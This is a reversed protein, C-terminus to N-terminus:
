NYRKFFVMEMFRRVSIPRVGRKANAAGIEFAIKWQRMLDRWGQFLRNDPDYVHTAESTVGNLELVKINKGQHFDEVSTVRVDYRGFYFGNFQRSISDFATTMEPTILASGDLFLAGRAHTGVEVLEIEEGASPVDFLQRRHVRFHLPALCVARDDMLILEELTHKGDGTLFLRRKDTISFIAGQDQGPYRYYFVGSERGEIYEQVITDEVAEELYRHVQDMDRAVTVGQGRQGVDPKLIIPFELHRNAMFVQIRDVQQEKPIAQDILIFSAVCESSGLNNLIDSKSEGIIGGAPMGPNAATFVTFNRHRLGLFLIYGVIPIYFVQVPWFEWRTLRRFRSLLLRRGRFSSLPVLIRVGLWLFFVTALVVWIAYQEFVPYYSLIRSGVVTSLGVLAPTWLLAAFAFYVTFTLLSTGLMGATFYTPMRSGPLFRSILIIAPGRARFWESSREIDETTLLWKLPAKGLAPRGIFRGALFLLIDGIVIGIFAAAAAPVFGIIGRAAMMGAGICALDESILTALAILVMYMILLPGEAPTLMVTPMLESAADVRDPTAVARTVGKGAEVRSIFESVHATVLDPQEFVLLHGGDLLRLESQPVLRYHERAAVAPILTDSAGHWILTPQTVQRLLERLPRQDTEYFNRAYNTNLPFQDLWGFHPTGEQLLWLMALQTGHLARNLHYDGLLELEQVGISSILSLSAVREPAEAALHIAVGGGMSYGVLHAQSIGLTDMFLLLYASHAKISYDPIHQTSTGLGPLDPALVRWTKPLKQILDTFVHSAAMPSGHIFIVVPSTNPATPNTDLYRITVPASSLRPERTTPITM